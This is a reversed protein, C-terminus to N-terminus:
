ITHLRIVAIPKQFSAPTRTELRSDDLFRVSGSAREGKDRRPKPHSQDALRQSFPAIAGWCRKALPRLFVEKVDLRSGYFTLGTWHSDGTFVLTWDQVLSCHM